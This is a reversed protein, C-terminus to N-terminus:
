EEMRAKDAAEAATKAEQYESRLPPKKPITFKEEDEPEAEEKKEESEWDLQPCASRAENRTTIFRPAFGSVCYADYGVGILLSCVAISLDFCDGAQWKLVNAPAPIVSPYRDPPNLEEYNFFVALFQACTKYEYLEKYPLHTPRITTPLFKPVDYENPPCLFLFRNGYVNVFQEEFERVHELLLEEKPTNSKYHPPVAAGGKAEAEAIFRRCRIM